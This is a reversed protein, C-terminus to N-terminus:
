SSTWQITVIAGNKKLINSVLQVEGKSLREIELNTELIDEPHIFSVLSTSLLEKKIYGLKKKSHQILEFFDM